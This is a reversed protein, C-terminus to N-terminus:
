ATASAHFRTPGAKAPGRRRAEPEAAPAGSSPLLTLDVAARVPHRTLDPPLREALRAKARAALDGSELQAVLRRDLDHRVLNASPATPFRRAARDLRRPEASAAVLLNFLDVDTDRSGLVGLPFMEALLNVTLARGPEASVPTTADCPSLRQAM